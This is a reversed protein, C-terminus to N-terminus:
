WEDTDTKMECVLFSVLENEWWFKRLIKLTEEVEWFINERIDEYNWWWWWSWPYQENQIRNIQYTWSGRTKFEQNKTIRNERNRM